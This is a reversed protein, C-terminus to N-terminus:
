ANQEYFERAEDAEAFPGAIIEYEGPIPQSYVVWGHRDNDYGFCNASCDGPAYGPEGGPISVSANPTLSSQEDQKDEGAKYVPIAVGAFRASQQVFAQRQEPTSDGPWVFEGIIRQAEALQKAGALSGYHYGNDYDSRSQMEQIQNNAEALQQELPCDKCGGARWSEESLRKNAEALEKELRCIDCKRAVNGHPCVATPEMHCPVAQILARREEDTLIDSM